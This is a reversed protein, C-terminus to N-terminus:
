VHIGKEFKTFNHHLSSFTLWSSFFLVLEIQTTLVTRTNKERAWFFFSAPLELGIQIISLVLKICSDLCLEEVFQSLDM